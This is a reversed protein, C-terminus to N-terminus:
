KLVGGNWKTQLSTYLRCTQNQCTDTTRLLFRTLVEVYMCKTCVQKEEKDRMPVTTKSGVNWARTENVVTEGKEIAHIQRDIEYSVAAAVGRISSINKIETRVGLPQGNEHVSVNADVRLAGETLLHWIM